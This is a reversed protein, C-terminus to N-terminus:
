WVATDYFYLKQAL